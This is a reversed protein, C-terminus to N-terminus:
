GMMKPDGPTGAPLQVEIIGDGAKNKQRKSICPGAPTVPCDPLLGVFVPETKTDIVGDGNWDFFGQPTAAPTGVRTAFKQQSGYCLQLSTAGNDPVAAVAAKDIRLTAIKAGAGTYSYTAEDHTLEVYDTAESLRCDLIGATGPTGFAIRLVDTPQGGGPVTITLTAQGSQATASCAGTAPCTLNACTRANVSTSPTPGVLNLDNGTGNFDNSQKAAVGWPANTVAACPVSADVTVKRSTGPQVALNRLQLVGGVVSGATAPTVSGSILAFGTPPTLNASGLQQQATSPVTLTATFTVRAGGPATAPSITLSFPKVAADAAPVASLGGLLVLVLLLSRRVNVAM